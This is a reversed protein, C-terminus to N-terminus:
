PKREKNRASVDFGDEATAASNPCEKCELHHGRCRPCDGKGGGKKGKSDGKGGKPGRAARFRRGDESLLQQEKPGKTDKLLDTVKRLQNKLFLNSDNNQKTSM